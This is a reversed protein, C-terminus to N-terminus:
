QPHSQSKRSSQQHQHIPNHAYAWTWNYYKWGLKHQETEDKIWVVQETLPFLQNTPKAPRKNMHGIPIVGKVHMHVTRNYARIIHMLILM